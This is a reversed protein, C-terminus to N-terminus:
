RSRPRCSDPPPSAVSCSRTGLSCHEIRHRADSRPWQKQAREYASLAIDIAVDGNAHIGIQWGGPTVTM